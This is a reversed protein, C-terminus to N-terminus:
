LLEIGIKRLLEGAKVLSLGVVNYYDGKIWEVLLAGKGQIGYAGAKDMPEGTDIYREIEAKSLSRFRVETVTCDSFALGGRMVTIGTFVNHTRDSMAALMEEAEGCDKPKGFIRGDILVLTDAALVPMDAFVEAAVRAKRGSLLLVQERATLTGDLEENVDAEYVRFEAGVSKLLERRRPSASALIFKEM